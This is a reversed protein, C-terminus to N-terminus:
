TASHAPLSIVMPLFCVITPAALIGVRLMFITRPGLTM